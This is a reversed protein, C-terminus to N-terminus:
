IFWGTNYRSFCFNMESNVVNKSKGTQHLICSYVFVKLLILFIRQFKESTILKTIREMKINENARTYVYENKNMHRHAYTHMYMKPYAHEHMHEYEDM